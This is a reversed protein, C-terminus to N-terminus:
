NVESKVFTIVGERASDWPGVPVTYNYVLAVEVANLGSMQTIEPRVTYPMRVFREDDTGYNKIDILIGGTDGDNLKGVVNDVGVEIEESVDASVGAALVSVSVTPLNRVGNAADVVTEYPLNLIQEMYGQTVSFAATEYVNSESIKRVLLATSVVATALMAFITMGIMAEVLSFGARARPSVTQEPILM